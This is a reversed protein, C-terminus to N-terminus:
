EAVRSILERGKGAIIDPLTMPDIGLEALLRCCESTEFRGTLGDTYSINNIVYFHEARISFGKKKSDFCVTAMYEKSSFFGHKVYKAHSLIEFSHWGSASMFALLNKGTTSALFEEYHRVAAPIAASYGRIRRDREQASQLRAAKETNLRNVASEFEDM